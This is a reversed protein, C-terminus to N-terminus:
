SSYTRRMSRGVVGYRSASHAHLVKDKRMHMCMRHCLGSHRAASDYIDDCLHSRDSLLDHDHDVCLKNRAMIVSTASSAGDRRIHRSSAAGGSITSVVDGFDPNGQSCVCASSSAGRQGSFVVAASEPCNRRKAALMSSFAPSIGPLKQSASYRKTRRSKAKKAGQSVGMCITM